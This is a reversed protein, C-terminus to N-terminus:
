MVILVCSYLSPKIGLCNQFKYLVSSEDGKAFVTFAASNNEDRRYSSILVVKATSYDEQWGDCEVCFETSNIESNGLLM